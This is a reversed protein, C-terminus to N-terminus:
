LLALEVWLAQEEAALEALRDTIHADGARAAAEIEACCKALSTAGLNLSAGRLAHAERRVGDLNGSAVHARLLELIDTASQRYADILEREFEQDGETLARLHNRDLVLM